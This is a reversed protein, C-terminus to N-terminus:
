IDRLGENSAGHQRLLHGSPLDPERCIARLADVPNAQARGARRALALAMQMSENFARTPQPESTDAQARPTAHEVYLAVDQTLASTDVGLPRLTADVDQDPLLSLLLHETTLFEDHNAKAQVFADHVRSELQPHLVSADAPAPPALVTPIGHSVYLVISAQRIGQATLLKQAACDEGLIGALLAGANIGEHGLAPIFDARYTAGCAQESVQTEGDFAATPMADLLTDLEGRLVDIDCGVSRLVHISPPEDILSRLLHETSFQQHGRAKAQAFAAELMTITEGPFGGLLESLQPASFSDPYRALGREYSLRAGFALASPVNGRTEWAVHAGLTDWDNFGHERAVVTRATDRDMQSPEVRKFRELANHEGAEAAQFLADSQWNLTEFGDSGALPQLPTESSSTDYRVTLTATADHEPDFNMVQVQWYRHGLADIAPQRIDTAITLTEGNESDVRTWHLRQPGADGMFLLMMANSGTHELTATFATPRDFRFHLTRGNNDNNDWRSLDFRTSGPPHIQREVVIPVIPEVPREALAFAVRRLLNRYEPSFEDPHAYAGAYVVCGQRMVVACDKDDALTAIYDVTPRFEILRPPAMHLTPTEDNREALSVDHSGKFARFPKQQEPSGLLQSDVEAMPKDWGSMGTVLELENIQRRVWNATFGIALIRRGRLREIQEAPLQEDFRMHLNLVLVDTQAEIAEHLDDAIEVTTASDDRLLEAFGEAWGAIVNSFITFSPAPQAEEEM